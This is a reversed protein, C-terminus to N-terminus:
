DELNPYESEDTYKNIKSLFDDISPSKFYYPNDKDKIHFSNNNIKSDISCSLSFLILIILLIKM